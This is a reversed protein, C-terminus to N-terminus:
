KTAKNDRVEKNFLTLKFQQRREPPFFHTVTTDSRHEQGLLLFIASSSENAEALFLYRASIRLSYSVASEGRNGGDVEWEKPCFLQRKMELSKDIWKRAHASFVMEEGAVICSVRPYLMVAIECCLLLPLSFATTKAQLSPVASQFPLLQLKVPVKLFGECNEYNLGFFIYFFGKGTFAPDGFCPSVWLSPSQKTLYLM